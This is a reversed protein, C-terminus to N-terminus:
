FNLKTKYIHELFNKDAAQKFLEYTLGQPILNAKELEKWLQPLTEIILESDIYPYNFNQKLFGVIVQKIKEKNEM